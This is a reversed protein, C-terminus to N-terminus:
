RGISAPFQGARVRHRIWSALEYFRLNTYAQKGEVESRGPRVSCSCYKSFRGNTDQMSRWKRDLVEWDCRLPDDVLPQKARGLVQKPMNGEMASRLLFKYYRFPITPTAWATEIVRLDLFPFRSEVGTRSGYGDYSSLADSLVWGSIVAYGRPTASDSSRPANWYRDWRSRLHLRQVMDLQIWGPMEPARKAEQAASGNARHHLRRWVELLRFGPRAVSDRGYDALFRVYRREQLLTHFYQYPASVVEDGGEGSLVVRGYAALRQACVAPLPVGREAPEPHQAAATDWEPGFCELDDGAVFEIPIGLHRAVLGAYHREQDPILRDYVATVAHVATPPSRHALLPMMTAALSASDMGGSLSVVVKDTRLRDAIARRFVDMFAEIYDRQRRRRVIEPITLTWYREIRMGEPTWELRHAPPLRHIDAFASAAVDTNWGFLLFDCIYSDNLTDSVQPHRRVCDLMNSVVIGDPVSAYFLPKVGLHDRAAFLRQARSDAIVFAFDGLMHEVCATGWVHYGHLILHVDPEHLSADRGHARLERVLEDRADIRADASIWVQEDFTLPQAERASEDVTRFLTHVLAFRDGSWRGARDPGRAALIREMASLLQPDIPAERRLGLAAIGSM